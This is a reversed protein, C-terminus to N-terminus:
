PRELRALFRLLRDEVADVVGDSRDRELDSLLRGCTVLGSTLLEGACALGEELESVLIERDVPQPPPRAKEAVRGVATPFVTSTIGLETFDVM